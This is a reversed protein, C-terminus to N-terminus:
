KKHTANKLKKACVLADKGKIQDIPLNGLTPFPDKEFISLDHLYTTEKIIVKSNRIWGM